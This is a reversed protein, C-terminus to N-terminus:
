IPKLHIDGILASGGNLGGLLYGVLALLRIKNRRVKQGPDPPGLKGNKILIM